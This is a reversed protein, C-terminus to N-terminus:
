EDDPLKRKRVPSYVNEFESGAVIDVGRCYVVEEPAFSGDPQEVLDTKVGTLEVIYDGKVASRVGHITVVSEHDDDVKKAQVIVPKSRFEQFDSM